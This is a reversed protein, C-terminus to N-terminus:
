LFLKYMNYSLENLNNIFKEHTHFYRNQSIWKATFMYDNCEAHVSKKHYITSGKNFNMLLISLRSGGRKM